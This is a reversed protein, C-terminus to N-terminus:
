KKVPAQGAAFTEDSAAHMGLELYLLLALMPIFVTVMLALAPRREATGTYHLAATQQSEAPIDLLLEKDLEERAAKYFVQDIRGEKLDIDLENIKEDNIKLNSDKYALSSNKRVKLLPYVLVGIAFLLMFILIVWFMINM